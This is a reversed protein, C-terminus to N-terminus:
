SVVTLKRVVKSINHFALFLFPSSSVIVDSQLLTRKERSLSKTLWLNKRWIGLKTIPPPNLLRSQRTENPIVVDVEKSVGVLQRPEAAEYDDNM